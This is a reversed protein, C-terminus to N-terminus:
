TSNASIKNNRYNPTLQSSHSDQVHFERTGAFNGEVAWTQRRGQSGDVKMDGRVEKRVICGGDNPISRRIPGTGVAQRLRWAVEALMLSM